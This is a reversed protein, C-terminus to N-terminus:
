FLISVLQVHIPKSLDKENELLNFLSEKVDFTTGGEEGIATVDGDGHCASSVCM